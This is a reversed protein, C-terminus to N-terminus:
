AGCKSHFEAQYDTSEPEEYLYDLMFVRAKRNFPRVGRIQYKSEFEKRGLERKFFREAQAEDDDDSDETYTVQNIYQELTM